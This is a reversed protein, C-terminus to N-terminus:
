IVRRGAEHSGAPCNCNFDAKVQSSQAGASGFRGSFPNQDSMCSPCEPPPPPPQPNPDPDPDPYPDRDPDPAITPAIERGKDDCTKCEKTTPTKTQAQATFLNYTACITCLILFSGLGVMLRKNIKM